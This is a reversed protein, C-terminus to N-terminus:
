SVARVRRKPFTKKAFDGVENTFYGDCAAGIMAGVLPVMKGFNIVGKEGFKTLLRFGVKKNIEILTRGSIQRITQEAFKQGVKVGVEKLINKISDGVLSLYVMTKVQDCRVDYGKMHAIAAIMRIQVYLVGTINIPLSVPLTVLGGFGTVFGNTANKTVQWRILSDIRENLTGSGKLYDNGLEEATEAGPLGNIAKDYCWDLASMMQNHNSM